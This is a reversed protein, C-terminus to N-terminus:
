DEGDDVDQGSREVPLEPRAGSPEPAIHATQLCKEAAASADAAPGGPDVDCPFGLLEGLATKAYERVLPYPHALARAVLPAALRDKRQGLLSLAVAQEHPKGRELTAVLANQDLDGYLQRLTEREYRKGWLREMDTLIREVSRDAHCLACELPRDLLVRMPDTPSGIRHYRTLGSALSMNKKPMHCAVCAGAAGDPDHRAHAALAPKAAYKAHCSTCVANGRPTEVEGVPGGGGVHPDHCASCALGDCKGLILDRAEGSNINSGGARGVQAADRRGGEWTWPYRSFLVQHCRACARDIAEARSPTRKLRFFAGVPVFSPLIRANQVHERSGGHCSECGIGVELLHEGRFGARTAAIAGAIMRPGSGSASAGFASLEDRLSSALASDDTIEYDWRRDEPLTADVLAGQYAPAGRPGKPAFAGLLTLLYPSTNHCFICTESWAAGESMRPREKVMVSYGKYRLRQPGLLWSVPLVRETGDGGQPVGVFDERVRGGIVRTVEYTARGVARSEVRLIRKKQFSELTVTDSKFRFTTGDFPARITADAALRTMGHM